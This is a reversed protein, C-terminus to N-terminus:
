RFESQMDSSNQTYVDFKPDPRLGAGKAHGTAGGGSKQGLNYYSLCFNWICWNEIICIPGM